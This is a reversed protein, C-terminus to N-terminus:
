FPKPWHSKDEECASIEPLFILWPNTVWDWKPDRRQMTKARLNARTRTLIAKGQSAICPFADRAADNKEGAKERRGEGRGGGAEEAASKGLRHKDTDM